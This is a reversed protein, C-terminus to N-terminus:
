RLLRAMPSWCGRSALLKKYLLTAPNLGRCRTKAHDLRNQDTDRWYWGIDGKERGTAAIEIGLAYHCRKKHSGQVLSCLCALVTVEAEAVTNNLRGPQQPSRTTSAVTNNVHADAFDNGSLNM